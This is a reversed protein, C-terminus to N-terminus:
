DPTGTRIFFVLDSGVTLQEILEHGNSEAWAPIDSLAGKDTAMVKLVQGPDMRRAAKTAAMVPMPCMLERADVLVDETIDSM